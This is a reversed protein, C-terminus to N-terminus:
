REQCICVRATERTLAGSVALVEFNRSGITIRSKATITTGAPLTITWGMVGRQQGAAVLEDGSAPALRCVTATTAWVETYGGMGDSTLTRVNVTCADTLTLVQVAQMAALEATSLM